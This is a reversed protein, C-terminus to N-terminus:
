AEKGGAISGSVAPAPTIGGARVPV